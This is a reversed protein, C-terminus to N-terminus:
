NSYEETKRRIEDNVVDNWQGLLYDISSSKNIVNWYIQDVARSVFYGGPLEPFEVLEDWQKHLQDTTGEAWDLREVAALTASSHRAASGAASEVRRIYQYQTEESSWWKLYAWAERPLDTSALIVSADGFGVNQANITGDESLTGPVTVMRWKGRIEPAAAAVTAYTTYSQIAMPMVGSRFRNFFDYTVPFERESYYNMMETFADVVERKNFDVQTLEDNYLSAGRQVTFTPFMSLAGIGNDTQYMDSIATYPMGTQMGRLRLIDSVHKFEDWTTPVRLELEEFIDTRYFLMYFNQTNPLGYVKNRYTYPVTAMSAFRESVLDFDEFDSLPLLAGRMAYNVPSTRSVGLVVDPARGSLSAQILNASTIRINVNIGTNATFDSETLVSLVKVQDNGWNAWVDISREGEEGSVISYDTFFSTIIRQTKFGLWTWFDNERPRELEKEPASLLIADIDLPMEQMEYLWASLSSLADNFATLRRHAKYKTELIKEMVTAIKRLSASGGGGASGTLSEALKSLEEIDALIRQMREELDPIQKFLAYDRNADPTEGTIGRIDRYVENLEYVTQELKQSLQDMDGLSVTLTLTRQGKELYIPITQEDADQLTYYNWGTGYSFPIKACEEYPIQGDVTLRRFSIGGANFNQRYHFTITYWATVPVDVTWSISDGLYKWNTGGIYNLLGAEPSSPKVASSNNDSLPIIFNDSKVSADEGELVIESGTYDEATHQQRYTEYSVPAEYPTLVIAKLQINGSVYAVTVTHVGPTLDFLLPEVYAGGESYLVTSQWAIMEVQKPAFQNGLRDEYIEGDSCWIRPLQARHTEENDCRIGIVYDELQDPISQWELSIQYCGATAVEVSFVADPTEETLLLIQEAENVPLAYGPLAFAVLMCVTLFLSVWSKM